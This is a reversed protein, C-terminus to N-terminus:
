RANMGSQLYPGLLVLDVLLFGIIKPEKSRPSQRLKDGKAENKPWTQGLEAWPNRPQKVEFQVYEVGEYCLISLKSFAISAAGGRCNRM